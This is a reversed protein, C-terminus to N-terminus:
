SSTISLVAFFIDSFVQADYSSAFFRTLPIIHANDVTLENLAHHATLLIPLLCAAASDITRSSSL